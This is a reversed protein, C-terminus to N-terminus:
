TTGYEKELEDIAAAQSNDQDCSRCQEPLEDILKLLNATTRAKEAWLKKWEKSEAHTLPICGFMQLPPEVKERKFEELNEM